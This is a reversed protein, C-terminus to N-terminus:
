KCKLDKINKLLNSGMIKLEEKYDKLFKPQYGDKHINIIIDNAYSSRQWEPLKSLLTYSMDLDRNVIFGYYYFVGLIYLENSFNNYAYRLTLFFLVDFSYLYQLRERRQETNINRVCEVLYETLSSPVMPTNVFTLDFVEEEKGKTLDLSKRKENFINSATLLFVLHKNDRQEEEENPCYYFMLGLILVLLVILITIITWM